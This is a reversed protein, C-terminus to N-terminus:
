VVRLIKSPTAQIMNVPTRCFFEISVIRTDAWVWISLFESQSHIRGLALLIRSDKVRWFKARSQFSSTATDSWTHMLCVDRELVYRFYKLLSLDKFSVIINTKKAFRKPLDNTPLIFIGDIETPFIDELTKMKRILTNRITGSELLQKDLPEEKIMYKCYEFPIHTRGLLYICYSCSWFPQTYMEYQKDTWLFKDDTVVKILKLSSNYYGCYECTGRTTEKGVDISRAIEPIM